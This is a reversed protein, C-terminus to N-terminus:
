SELGKRRTFMLTGAGALFMTTGIGALGAVDAGTRPLSVPTGSPMSTPPNPTLPPPPTPTPPRPTPPTSPPPRPTPPTPTPPTPPPPTPPCIPPPPCAMPLGAPPPPLVPGTTCSNGTASNGMGLVTVSDGCIDIPINVPARVVNGSAIGTSNSPMGGTKAAAAESGENACLAGQSNSGALAAAAVGCINVPIHVPVEVINDTLVSGGLVPLPSDPTTDSLDPPTEPQRTELTPAPRLTDREPAQNMLQKDSEGPETGYQRTATATDVPISTGKVAQDSDAAQGKGPTNGSMEPHHDVASVAPAAGTILLGGVAVAVALSRKAVDHM